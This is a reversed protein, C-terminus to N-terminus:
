NIHTHTHTPAHTLTPTPTPTPTLTPTHPHPHTPTHTHTNAAVSTECHFLLSIGPQSPPFGFSHDPTLSSAPQSAVCRRMPASNPFAPRLSLGAAGAGGAGSSATATAPVPSSRGFALPREDALGGSARMAALAKKAQNACSWPMTTTLISLGSLPSAHVGWPM